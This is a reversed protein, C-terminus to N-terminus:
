FTMMFPVTMLKVANFYFAEQRWLVRQLSHFVLVCVSFLDFLLHSFCLVLLFPWSSSPSPFFSWFCPFLPCQVWSISPFLFPFTFVPHSSHKFVSFKFNSIPGTWKLETAWDKRVRQSGVSQLMGPKGTRWWGRSSAWVWTWQITISYVNYPYLLYM